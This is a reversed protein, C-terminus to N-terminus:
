MLGLRSRVVALAATCATEVRLVRPGLHAFTFRQARLWDREAGSWGREPGVAIAVPTDRLVHCEGLRAPAEYNDLALRTGPTPLAAVVDGLTRGHTVAPVRTDFAQQAGDILHRRWDGSSWLTSQAYSPESKEAAFFHLAEVGLATADRLIDRATQPRPLGVLLTIPDPPPPPEGWAFELRLAAPEIATLTAKGRPGNVLGVDLTDGAKRRLVELIHIARPDQRPLPTAAAASEFLILNM